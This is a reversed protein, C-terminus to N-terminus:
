PGASCVVGGVTVLESGLGTKNGSVNIINGRSDEFHICFDASIGFVNKLQHYPVNSLNDLTTPNVKTGQIFAPNPTTNRSGSLAAILKSAEKNLNDVKLKDTQDSSISFFIILAITFLGVAILVDTSITQGKSSRMTLVEAARSATLPLTGAEM